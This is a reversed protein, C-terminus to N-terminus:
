DHSEEREDAAQMRDRNCDLCLGDVTKASTTLCECAECYVGLGHRPCYLRDMADCECLAAGHAGGHTPNIASARRTLNIM